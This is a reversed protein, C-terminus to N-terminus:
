RERVHGNSAPATPTRSAYEAARLNIAIDLDERHFAVVDCYGELDSIFHHLDEIANLQDLTLSMFYRGLNQYILIVSYGLSSLTAFVPFAKQGVLESCTPYYEFFLIPKNGKLLETEAAIIRCDFGEADIKLLKAAAFRSHRALAETLTCISARGPTPGLLVRANGRRVDVSAIHDGPAGIFTQEIEVGPLTRTNQKLLQFFRPEGELCLVPHDSYKHVIAVSDGINAGVDIMTLDQYKQRAHFGVRGLNFGYDPFKRRYFPLEHSLPLRLNYPGVSCNVAPDSVILRLRRLGRLLRHKARNGLGDVPTNVAADLLWQDLRATTVPGGINVWRESQSQQSLNRSLAM